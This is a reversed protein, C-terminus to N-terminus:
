LQSGFWLKTIGAGLAWAVVGTGRKQASKQATPPQQSAAHDADSGAVAGAAEGGVVAGRRKRASAPPPTAGPQQQQQQAQSGKPPPQPQSPPEQSTEAGQQSSPHAPSQAQTGAPEPAATRQAVEEVDSSDSSTSPLRGGAAPSKHEALWSPLSSDDSDLNVLASKRPRAALPLEDDSSSAM